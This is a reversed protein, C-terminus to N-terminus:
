SSAVKRAKSRLYYRPGAPVSRNLDTPENDLDRIMEAEFNALGM